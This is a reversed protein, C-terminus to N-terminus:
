GTTRLSVASEFRNFMVDRLRFGESRAGFAAVTAQSLPALAFTEGMRNQWERAFDSFADAGSLDVSLTGNM